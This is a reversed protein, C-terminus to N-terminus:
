DETPEYFTTRTYAKRKNRNGNVVRGDDRGATLLSVKRRQLTEVLQAYYPILHRIYGTAGIYQELAAFRRPFDLKAFAAIREATTTLGLNEVRFGLVQASPYGIWSKETSVSISKTVFLKFLTKLHRLHDEASKSFIAIDDIFARCFSRHPRLCRGM